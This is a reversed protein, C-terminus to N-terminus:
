PWVNVKDDLVVPKVKKSSGQLTGLYIFGLMKENESFGLGDQVVPDYALQGTRWIARYGLAEAALLINQVACGASLMQEMDPAKPHETIVASAVLILPARLPKNRIVEKEEDTMRGSNKEMQATVFLDGLAILGNGRIIRFRAPTLRYHDPARYAAELMEPLEKESPAPSVLRSASNRSRIFDILRPEKSNNM